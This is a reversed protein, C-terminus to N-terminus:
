RTLESYALVDIEGDWEDQDPENELAMASPDVSLFTLLVNRKAPQEGNNSSDKPEGADREALYAKIETELVSWDEFFAPKQGKNLGAM